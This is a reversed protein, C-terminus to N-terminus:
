QELEVELNLIKPNKMLELFGVEYILTKGDASFTAEEASASKVRKPFHYKLTYTSGTLFLEAGALSDVAQQHLQANLIRATRSFSNGKFSYSVESSKTDNSLFQPQNARGAPSLADTNQFTNFADGIEDINEFSSYMDFKMEQTDPNMVMHLNFPELKKLKAQQEPSLTAISDKKEELFQKFSLTSDIAKETGAMMEDGGMQMLESGDFNISIKGSGNEELFIEETFNCSVVLALLVLLSGMKIKFM